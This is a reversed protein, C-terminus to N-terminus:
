KLNATIAFEINELKSLIQQLVILTDEEYTGTTKRRGYEDTEVERYVGDADLGLDPQVVRGDQTIRNTDSLDLGKKPLAPIERSPSVM